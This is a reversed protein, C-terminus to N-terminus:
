DNEHLLSMKLEFMAPSMDLYHTHSNEFRQEEQWIENDLQHRVYNRIDSLKPLEYVLEGDKFIQKQLTKFTCDVFSRNKWYNIPDVYRVPKDADIVEGKVALYDAVAKGSKDYVRYVEKIGPNTIKEATESIKIKPVFEGNKNVAVLKAGDQLYM